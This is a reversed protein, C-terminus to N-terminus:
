FDDITASKLAKAYSGLSKLTPTIAKKYQIKKIGGSQRFREAEMASMEQLRTYRQDLAEWLSPTFCSAKVVMRLLFEPNELAKNCFTAEIEGLLIKDPNLALPQPVLEGELSQSFAFLPNINNLKIFEMFQSYTRALGLGIPLDQSKYVINPTWSFMLLVYDKSSQLITWDDKLLATDSPSPEYSQFLNHLALAHNFQSLSTKLRTLQAQLEKDDCEGKSYLTVLEDLTYEATKPQETPNSTPQETAMLISEGYHLTLLTLLDQPINPDPLGMVYSIAEDLNPLNKALAAAAATAEYELSFFELLSITQKKTLSM